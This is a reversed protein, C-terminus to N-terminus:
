WCRFVAFIRTATITASIPGSRTPSSSASLAFAVPALASGRHNRGPELGAHRRFGRPQRASLSAPPQAVRGQARYRRARRRGECRADQRQRDIALPRVQLLYLQETAVSPSSWTSQMVASFLRSNAWSLSSRRWRRRPLRGTRSKLCYFRRSDEGAGATVRNTLGSRDDYNVVFYPGGGSPSRSFVVGAM